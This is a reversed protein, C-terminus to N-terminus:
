KTVLVTRLKNTYWALKGADQMDNDKHGIRSGYKLINGKLYGRFEEPTLKAQIFDITEIGGHTYHAPHNVPDPQIINKWESELIPATVPTITKPPQWNDLIDKVHQQPTKPTVIEAPANSWENLLQEIRTVKVQTVQEDVNASRKLEQGKEALKKKLHYRLNYVTQLPVSFKDAIFQASMDPNLLIFERVKSARAQKIRKTM